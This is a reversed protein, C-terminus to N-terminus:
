QYFEKFDFCLNEPLTIKESLWQILTTNTLKSTNRAPNFAVGFDPLHVFDLILPEKRRKKKVERAGDAATFSTPSIHHFVIWDMRLFGLLCGKPGQKFRWHIPGAWALRATAGFYSYEQPLSSLQDKLEVIGLQKGNHPVVAFPNLQGDDNRQRYVGDEEDIDEMGLHTDIQSENSYGLDPVADMDFAHDENVAPLEPVLYDNLKRKTPSGLQGLLDEDEPDWSTFSFGKLTPCIEASDLGLDM